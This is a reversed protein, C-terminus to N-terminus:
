WTGACRNCERAKQNDEDLKVRVRCPKDCSPCVPMVKSANIFAEQRKIGSTEGTRRAKYHRTVLAIGKVLIRGKKPQVELVSGRKGKDKGTMVLVTDNKKIRMM